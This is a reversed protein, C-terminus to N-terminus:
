SEELTLSDRLIGTLIDHVYRPEIVIAGGWTMADAPLHEGAWERAAETRPTLLAISGDQRFLFDTM